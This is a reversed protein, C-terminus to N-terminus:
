SQKHWNQFTFLVGKLSDFCYRGRVFFWFFLVFFFVSLCFSVSLSLCVSFSLLPSLFLPPSHLPSSFFSLLLSLSSLSLQGSNGQFIPSAKWISIVGSNAYQGFASELFFLPMGTVFLMIMFPLVFAGALVCLARGHDIASVSGTM